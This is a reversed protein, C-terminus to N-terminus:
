AVIALSAKCQGIACGSNERWILSTPFKLGVYKILFLNFYIGMVLNQFVFNKLSGPLLFKLTCFLVRFVAM